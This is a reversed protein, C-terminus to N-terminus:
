GMESNIIKIDHLYNSTVMFFTLSNFVVMIRIGTFLTQDLGFSQRVFFFALAGLALSFLVGSLAILISKPGSKRIASMDIMVGSIFMHLMFGFSAITKLVYRGPPPFLLGM